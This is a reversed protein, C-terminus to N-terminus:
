SSNGIDNNDLGFHKAIIATEKKFAEVAALEGFQDPAVYIKNLVVM